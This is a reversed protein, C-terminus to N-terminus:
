TTNILIRTVSIEYSSFIDMLIICALAPILRSIQSSRMCLLQHAASARNVLREHACAGFCADESEQRCENGPEKRVAERERGGGDQELPEEHLLHLGAHM